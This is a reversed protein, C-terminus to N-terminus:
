RRSELPATVAAPELWGELAWVEERQDSVVYAVRKGDPSVRLGAPLKTQHPESGTLGVSWVVARQGEAATVYLQEEALELAQLAGAAAEFVVRTEGDALNLLLVQSPKGDRDLAFALTEAEGAPLRLQAGAPAEYLPPLDTKADLAVRLIQTRDPSIYAATRPGLWVGELGAPPGGPIRVLGETEGTDPNVTFLGSRGRGDAGSALLLADDPSWSLQAISALAPTLRTEQRTAPAWVAVGRSEQGYNETGIQTLYAVRKGDHSWAPAHNRGLTRLGAPQPAVAQGALLGAIQVDSRGARLGFFYAGGPAIGIPLARGLSRAIPRPEATIQGDHFPALWLDMTGSRDSAFVVGDGSPTWLPFIDNAPHEILKHEAAGDANLLLIDRAIEDRGTLSDYLIYRGDPSFSIKKPYFWSLTKLVRVAGDDASVLAIQSVNDKRFFLTLIQKGDRSWDCPQVFGNEPNSYLKRPAGGEVPVTWLEYFGRENFWAYALTRSDRSFASFYAFTPADQPNQTLLRKEGTALTYVGLDGSAREVYSLLKGDPSLGGLLNTSADAWVKRTSGSPTAAAAALLAVLILRLPM